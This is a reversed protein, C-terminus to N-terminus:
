LADELVARIWAAVSVSRGEKVCWAEAAIQVRDWLADQIWIHRRCHPKPKTMASAGTTAALTLM